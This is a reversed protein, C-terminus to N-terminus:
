ATVQFLTSKTARDPKGNADWHVIVLKYWGVKDEGQPTVCPWSWTKTPHADAGAKYPPYVSTTPEYKGDKTASYTVASTYDGNPWNTISDIKIAVNNSVSCSNKGNVFTITETQLAAPVKNLIDAPSTPIASIGQEVKDLTDGAQSAADQGKDLTDSATQAAGCASLSIALAFAGVPLLIKRIPRM